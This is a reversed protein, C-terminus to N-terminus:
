VLLWLLLLDTKLLSCGNRAGFFEAHMLDPHHLCLVSTLTQTVWDSIMRAELLPLLYLFLRPIFIGRLEAGAQINSCDKWKQNQQITSFGKMHHKEFGWPM